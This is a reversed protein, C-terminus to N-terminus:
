WIAGGVENAAALAIKIADDGLLDSDGRAIIADAKAKMKKGLTYAALATVVPNLNYKQLKRMNDDVAGPRSWGTRAHLM